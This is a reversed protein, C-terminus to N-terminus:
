PLDAVSQWGDNRCQDTRLVPPGTTDTLAAGDHAYRLLDYISLVTCFQSLNQLGQDNALIVLVGRLTSDNQRGLRVRFWSFSTTEALGDLNAVINSHLVHDTRARMADWTQLKLLYVDVDALSTPQTGYDFARTDADLARLTEFFGQGLTGEAYMVIPRGLVEELPVARADPAPPPPLNPVDDAEDSQTVAANVVPPQTGDPRSQMLWVGGSLVAMAACVAALLAKANM